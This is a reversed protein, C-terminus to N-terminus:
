QGTVSWVRMNWLAAEAPASAEQIVLGTSKTRRRRCTWLPLSPLNGGAVVAVVSAAPAPLIPPTAADCPPTAYRFVSSPNTFTYPFSPKAPSKLPEPARMAKWVGEVM